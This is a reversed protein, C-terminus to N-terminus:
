IYSSLCGPCRKGPPPMYKTDVRRPFRHTTTRIYLLCLQRRPMRSHEEHTQFVFLIASRTITMAGALLQTFMMLRPAAIYETNLLGRATWVDSSGERVM